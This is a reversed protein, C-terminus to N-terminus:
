KSAMFFDQLKCIFFIANSLFSFRFLHGFIFICSSYVAIVFLLFILNKVRYAGTDVHMNEESNGM